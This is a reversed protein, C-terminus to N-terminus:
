KQHHQKNVVVRVGEEGDFVLTSARERPICYIQSKSRGGTMVATCQVAALETFVSRLEVDVRRRVM